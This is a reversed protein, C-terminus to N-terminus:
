KIKYKPATFPYSKGYEGSAEYLSYEKLHTTDIGVMTLIEDCVDQCTTFSTIAITKETADM